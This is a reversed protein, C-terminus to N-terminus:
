GPLVKSLQPVLKDAVYPLSLPSAFYIAGALEGGTYISRGAKVAKLSTFGPVKELATRDSDKETGWVLVDAANLVSIREVPIYAQAAEKAYRDIDKPVVFGLDTLFDTSLGAQYAILNGDYVANQLFVANKGKFQPNAAAADSYQKEIKTRLATAKAPEGVAAGITQLTMTWPEFVAQKSSHAVTPAIKSLKAYDAATLSANCAVILDPKLQAIRTFQLGDDTNLVVPKASGLASRAWPWTAYPQDGYWDTVAIPTVGLALLFDQETLGASVVRTPRKAIVTSGLAHKVTVPTWAASSGSASGSGAATESAGGGFGCSALLAGFGVGGASTLVARRDLERNM